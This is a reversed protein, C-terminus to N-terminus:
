APELVLTHRTARTVAEPSWAIPLADGKLWLPMQDAYHPSFPNGSQGGPLVFRSLEWEGVDIAVRLSAVAGDPNATPDAPDVVAPSVTNTDGGWPYPGLNFVRGLPRRDSVPHRFTLPRVRGWAWGAPDPGFRGSLREVASRLARRVEEEWGEPFWGAPQERLLRVLHGVRRVIFSNIPILSVFGRGLAWEASRPARARAVRGCLEALLYEFLAAAPSDAAVRGDWSSLLEAPSALGPNGGAARLVTARLERWPLSLCDMQLALTAPVDWDTRAAIAESIRAVRYGDLFDCGLYPGTASPLNNATAVYGTAPDTARPMEEFPVWDPEWGTEPDWGPLPLAGAGRKRVPAAGIPQWGISGQASAFAVNLPVSNWGSFARRLDEPTRARPLEFLAGLSRPVLWTASMSLNGVEGAFAPGVLPGRDTVLVRVTEPLRGRVEIVETRVECPVFRDGRRVSAGDPGVEELFFDTNDILGATVGWAVHGNHGVALAPAGPLSAGALSWEPTTVHLLYWFPPLMPSLHPDNALLPRGTSTRGPAVAWNNSAGGLGLAAALRAADDALLDALRGAAEGPRDSAPQWEPYAPDLAVLAGPGDLTLVKLRALEVDWNSPMAFTFLAMYGLADAARYPTPHSRLLAFEHPRRPQGASAGATVGAAYAEALARHEPSLAEVAEEGYRRLGMRCSLRDLPLGGPGLLASLTGRVIRLRTEMQFARDQGHCFGVGFWADAETATEIHPIGFRDRRIRIPASVGELPLTGEMTPLRKGLARLAIRPANVM